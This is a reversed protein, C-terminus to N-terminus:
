QFIGGFIGAYYNSSGETGIWTQTDAGAGKELWALYHYGLQAYGTYFTKPVGAVETDNARSFEQVTASNVTTSDLGIGVYIVRYTTSSNVVIGMVTADLASGTLGALYEVQNSTSNNAQRFSATSYSWSATADNRLFQRKSQNYANYLFRKARSDETQGNATMRASGVYTARNASVSVTNGSVSGFRITITNKNTLFGNRLELETSGAGTGRATDSGAVAGANWSPGTGLRITGSDNIVFFDFNRGSQHYGTHGSDSDLALTLETFTTNSTTSGDYIPVQNGGALAFYVTAAGTVDSTTVPTASTLTLRGQPAVPAGATTAAITLTGAGDNYTASIGSGAVVLTGVRDDVAESFDSITSATQTGTHQSRALISTALDSITSALQTGTHNARDLVTPELVDAVEDVDMDITYVGNSRTVTMGTGGVFQAPLRTSSKLKLEHRRTLKLRM